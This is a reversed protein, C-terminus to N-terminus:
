SKTEKCPAVIEAAEAIFLWALLFTAAFARQAVLQWFGQPARRNRGGRRHVAV